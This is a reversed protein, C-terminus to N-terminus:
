RAFTAGFYALVGDPDLALREIESFEERTCDAAFIRSKGGRGPFVLTYITWGCPAQGPGTRADCYLLADELIRVPQELRHDAPCTIRHGKIFGVGRRIAKGQFVIYVGARAPTHQLAAVSM